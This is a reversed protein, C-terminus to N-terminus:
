GGCEQSTSTWFFMRMLYNEKLRDFSEGVLSEYNRPFLDERYQCTRRLHPGIPRQRDSIGAHLPLLFFGGRGDQRFTGREYGGPSPVPVLPYVPLQCVPFSVGSVQRGSGCNHCFVPVLVVLIRFLPSQDINM